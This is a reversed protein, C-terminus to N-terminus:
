IPTYTQYKMQERLLDPINNGDAPWYTHEGTSFYNLDNEQIVKLLSQCDNSPMGM